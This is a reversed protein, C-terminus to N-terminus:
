GQVWAMQSGGWAETLIRGLLYGIAERNNQIVKENGTESSKEVANLM